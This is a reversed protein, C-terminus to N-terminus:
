EADGWVASLAGAWRRKWNALSFGRATELAQEGLRRRKDPHRVLHELVQVLAETTVETLCGNVGDIVLDTLGGVRGCVVTKGGAMAELCSLSTGECSKSPILVIDARRFIDPMEHMPLWYYRCGEHATAWAHMEAEISDNIGRGVFHFEINSYRRCMIEAAAKAEDIGRSPDLRRPYLIVLKEPNPAGPFFLATDVFNPIYTQRTEHGPWTARLWNLTNTDVSVLLDPATLAYHLRRLWEQKFPGSLSSWPENPFDWVIGHSIVVSHKRVRPFPLMPAMYISRDFGSTREYFQLNLDPQCGYEGEGWPLGEIRIGEYEHTTGSAQWVHPEYGMEVLIKHLNVLYRNGGDYTLRRGHDLMFLCDLVAVRRDSGM